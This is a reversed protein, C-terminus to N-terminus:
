RRSRRAHGRRTMWAQEAAGMPTSPPGDAFPWLEMAIRRYNGTARLEGLLAYLGLNIRQIFVFAKPVTAFQSIPSSRDFTHRVIRSAYEGSWTVPRDERVSEYFQGFYQGIADNDAPCGPALLGAREVVSRFEVIDHDYAASRVMAVFTDMENVTFHKVLGFDLFTVKGGRHFLYNGPHPDGNFAHMGYLSRFVFRFLTEGILDREDQTWTLATAWTAGDALESTLVRGTSLAAIVKPVRITPHGDFFEAFAPAGLVQQLATFHTLTTGNIPKAVGCRGRWKPDILDRYGTPWQRPDPLKDTNVILVRARAAFGTWHHQPDQFAAPIAAAAPSDYPELLGLQALRVTHALENNWFVSCRPNSKEENIASVLGVTKTGETDYRQDIAFGLEKSFQKLLPESFEQDLTCYVKPNSHAEAGCAAFAPLLVLLFAPSIARM